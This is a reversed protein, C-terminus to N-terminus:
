PFVWPLVWTWAQPRGRCSKRGRPTATSIAATLRGRFSCHCNGRIEALHGRVVDGPYFRKFHLFIHIVASKRAVATEASIGHCNGRIKTFMTPIATKAMSLIAARATFIAAPKRSGEHFDGGISCNGHCHGRIATSITETPRGRFSRHYNGLVETSPRPFQKQQVDSSFAAAIVAPKRPSQRMATAIATSIRSMAVSTRPNGHYTGIFNAVSLIAARATVVVTANATFSLYMVRPVQRPFEFFNWQLGHCRGRFDVSTGRNNGRVM